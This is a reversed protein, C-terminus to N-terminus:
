KTKEKTNALSHKNDAVSDMTMALVNFKITERKKDKGEIVLSIPITDGEKIQRKLGTLMVMFGDPKLEVATGAPLDIGQIANVKMVYNNMVLEHIGVSSAVPSEAKVLRVDISSMLQMFAVTSEQHLATAHVWPDKVTVVALAPASLAALVLAVLTRHKM